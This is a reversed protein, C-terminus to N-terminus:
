REKKINESRVYSLIVLDNYFKNDNSVRKKRKHNNKNTRNSFIEPNGYYVCDPATLIATTQLRRHRQRNQRHSNLFIPISNQQHLLFKCLVNLCLWQIPFFKIIGKKELVFIQMDGSKM